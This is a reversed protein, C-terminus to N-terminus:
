ECVAILTTKLQPNKEVSLLLEAACKCLVTEKPLKNWMQVMEHLATRQTRMLRPVQGQIYLEAGNSLRSSRRSTQKSIFKEIPQQHTDVGIIGGDYGEILLDSNAYKHIIRLKEKVSLWSIKPWQLLQLVEDYNLMFSNTVMRSATRNVRELASRGEKTKGYTVGIGYTMVPRICVKYIREIEDKMHWKQLLNGVAHLMCRAKKATKTAHHSFNLRDDFEIGLYKLTQVREILTGNLVLPSTLPNAGKPSLSVLLLKTKGENIKLGESAIYKMISACDAQLQNEEAINSVRKVLLIDDAYM